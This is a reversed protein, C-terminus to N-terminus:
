GLRPGAVEAVMMLGSHCASMALMAQLKALLQSKLGAHFGLVDNQNTKM